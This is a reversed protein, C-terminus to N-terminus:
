SKDNSVRCHCLPRARHSCSRTPILTPKHDSSPRTPRTSEFSDLVPRTHLPPSQTTTKEKRTTTTSSQTTSTNKKKKKQTSTKM